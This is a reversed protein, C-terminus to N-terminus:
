EGEGVSRGLNYKVFELSSFSRIGPTSVRGVILPTPTKYLSIVSTTVTPTKCDRTDESSGLPEARTDNTRGGRGFNYQRCYRGVPM